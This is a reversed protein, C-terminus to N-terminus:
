FGLTQAPRITSGQVSQTALLSAGSSIQPPPAYYIANGSRGARVASPAVVESTASEAVLPGLIGSFVRKTRQAKLSGSNVNPKICRVSRNPARTLVLARLFDVEELMQVKLDADM